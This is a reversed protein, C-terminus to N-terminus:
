AEEGADAEDFFEFQEWWDSRALSAPFAQPESAEGRRWFVAFAGLRDREATLFEELSMPHQKSM